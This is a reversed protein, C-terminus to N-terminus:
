VDSSDDYDYRFGDQKAATENSVSAQLKKMLNAYLQREADDTPNTSAANLANEIFQLEKESFNM